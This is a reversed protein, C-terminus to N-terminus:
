RVPTRVPRPGGSPPPIRSLRERVLPNGASPGDQDVSFCIAEHFRSNILRERLNNIEERGSWLELELGVGLFNCRTRTSSDDCQNM